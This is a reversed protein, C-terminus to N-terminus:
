ARRSALARGSAFRTPKESFPTFIGKGSALQSVMVRSAPGEVVMESTFVPWTPM